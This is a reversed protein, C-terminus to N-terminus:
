ETHGFDSLAEEMCHDLLFFHSLIAKPSSFVYPHGYGGLTGKASLMFLHQLEDLEEKEMGERQRPPGCVEVTSKKVINRPSIGAHDKRRPDAGGMLLLHAMSSDLHQVALHLATRGDHLQVNPDAGYYLLLNVIAVAKQHTPIPRPGRADYDDGDRGHDGFDTTRVRQVAKVLATMSSTRFVVANVTAGLEMLTVVWRLKYYGAAVVLLPWCQNHSEGGVPDTEFADVDYGDRFMQHVKEDDDNVLAKRITQHSTLGTYDHDIERYDDSDESDEGDRANM